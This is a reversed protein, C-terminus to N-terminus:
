SMQRVDFNEEEADQDTHEHHLEMETGQAEYSARGQRRLLIPSTGLRPNGFQPSGFELVRGKFAGTKTV